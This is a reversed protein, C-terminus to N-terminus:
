EHACWRDIWWRVSENMDAMFVSTHKRVFVAEPYTALTENMRSSPAWETIEQIHQELKAGELRQYSNQMVANKCFHSTPQLAKKARGFVVFAAPFTYQPLELLEAIQPGKEMIDGIYCSGIGLSEAAIVANQAAIVADNIGLMLSGLGPAEQADPTTVTGNAIHRACDAARFMDAWKQYDAVFVLAFPARAVFPQDDCLLALQEKRGEDVIDLISYALLNGATPARLAAKLITDKEQDAIASSERTSEAFNRTSFRKGLLALTENTLPYQESAIELSEDQYM